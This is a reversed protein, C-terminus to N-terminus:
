FPGNAEQMVIRPERHSKEANQQTSLRGKMTNFVTNKGPCCPLTIISIGDTGDVERGCVPRLVGTGPKNKIM